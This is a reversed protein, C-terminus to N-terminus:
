KGKALSQALQLHKQLTPLSQKAYDSVQGDKRKAEKQYEAIDKKHDKVMSSAFQRDFQPGSLKNLKDYMAQQMKSPRTPPTVSISGAAATATQNAQSHDTELTKGFQKVGDSSGKQQALQGMQVEAMNGQIAKAIFKQGNDKAFGPSAACLLSGAAVAALLVKTMDIEGRIDKGGM